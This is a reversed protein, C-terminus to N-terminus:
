KETMKPLKDILSGARGLAHPVESSIIDARIPGGPAIVAYELSDCNLFIPTSVIEGNQQQRAKLVFGGMDAYFGHTPTWPFGAEEALQGLRSVSQKARANDQLAKGVLFEPLILTLLMWKVKRWVGIVGSQVSSRRAGQSPTNLHQVTWTCVLLTFLSNWLIDFTGRVNSSLVLTSNESPATCNPRFTDGLSPQVITLLLSFVIAKKQLADEPISLRYTKTLTGQLLGSTLFKLYDLVTQVLINHNSGSHKPTGCDAM